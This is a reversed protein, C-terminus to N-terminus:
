AGLCIFSSAAAAAVPDAGPEPRMNRLAEPLTAGARLERHLATMLPVVAADDVPVVSAVIGTTGLPLLSSALGLVEDAGAPATVGSDCSSLVLRRPGRHLRELDYVTLPGDDLQLASFLPSDARFTGHAAVHALGAGDLAALVREATATGDGLVVPPPHRGDRADAAYDAALLPVEAGGSALGPGRVLVVRGVGRRATGPIGAAQRARLWSAASPSVSVARSRLRPLLAWPVAQLRGPPVIIVSGDGLHDGADGLLAQDLKGGLAALWTHVTAADPSVAPEHAVRRLAQRAFRVARAADAASGARYRSVRGDGCVLAHLEGDVDVLEVLRSGRLEDLLQAVPFAQARDRGPERAHTGGGAAPGLPDGATRLSRTRVARELRRREHDLADAPQGAAAVAALRGAVDRLAALDALLAEDDPPRAPPVALAVARWRESWALVQRPRGQRAVHRLGLAALEAGHATSQARLESSGFVGRFEDIVALGHRCARLLARRDGAAEARLAQALWAAARVLAPGQRRGAAAAALYSDAEARLRRVARAAGRNALDDPCAQRGATTACLAPSVHAADASAWAAGRLAAAPYGGPPPVAVALQSTLRDSAHLALDDPEPARPGRAGPAAQGPTDDPEGGSARAALALAARGAALRALALDPAGLEGLERVARRADRLLEATAPGAGAAARVRTLRAHARWWARDQRGFLRAAETARGSAALPEGAALACDAAVLLLEARKAPQSHSRALRGAAADAEHLADGALGAAMLAACRHLSLDEDRVGLAAYQDGALDFCALAEPLQGTRLAVEGRSVLADVSELDQGCAAFLEEARRLDAAVRRISGTALLCHARHARARAEWLQDGAARLLLIASNLDGIAARYDGLLRLCAGRRLLPRGRQPGPARRVAQDLAHRGAAARGALVLAFGLTGLVDAERDTSGARAALQRAVRLEAISAEIDGFERLVLGIVQHAVSADRAGPADALMARAAAMAENPRSLALELLRDDAAGGLAAFGGM